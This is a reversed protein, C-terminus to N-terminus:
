SHNKKKKEYNRYLSFLIYLIIGFLLVDFLIKAVKFILVALCVILILKIITSVSIDKM